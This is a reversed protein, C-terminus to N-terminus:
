LDISASLKFTRPAGQLLDPRASDFASAWYRRNTVNDVSFRLTLPSDGVLAVYRAGLDLRTWSRLELTNAANAPQEGTHVVRGVLTLAPVFPLDWEVNGNILYEAVGAV